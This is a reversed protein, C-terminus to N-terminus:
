NIILKETWSIRNSAQFVKVIYMGKPMMQYRENSIHVHTEIENEYVKKGELTYIEITAPRDLGSVSIEFGDYAPNPAIQLQNEVDSFANNHTLVQTFQQIETASLVRNYIFIDDIDGNFFYPDGVWWPGGIRLTSVPDNCSVMSQNTQAQNVLQGNVYMNGIGNADVTMAVMDWVQGTIM